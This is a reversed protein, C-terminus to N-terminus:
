GVEPHGPCLTVSGASVVVNVIGGLRGGKDLVSCRKSNLVTQTIGLSDQLLVSDSYTVSDLLGVQESQLFQHAM